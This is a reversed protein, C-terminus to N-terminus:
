NQKNDWFIASNFSMNVFNLGNEKSYTSEGGVYFVLFPKDKFYNLLYDRAEYISRGMTILRTTCSSILGFLPADPFSNLNEDISKLLNRGDITLVSSESDKSRITTILSEGLIVPIIRPAIGSNETQFGLPFHYAINYWNKDNIYEEPWNMLKIFESAAPKNNIERITRGDKSIKTIKFKVNSKKMNHTTLVNLDHNTNIALSIVSNRLVKKNFFQYNKLGRGDDYTGGGLMYFDPLEKIIEEIVEDDRAAGKQLVYQSFGLLNTMMKPTLGSRIVKRRGLGLIDPIEGGSVLNLLFNNKYNSDKLNNKIMKVCNRAAKRPNRKTNRGYGIAVQTEPCSVALATVGRSFCGFNNMFGTVTGGILPTDPPLVDYVGELLEQFGGNKEYHITSFLLFFDPPRNLKEITSRAVERGAERADWTRSMGVAAELGSGM